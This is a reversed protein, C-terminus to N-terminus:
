FVVQAKAFQFFVNRFHSIKIQLFHDSFNISTVNM